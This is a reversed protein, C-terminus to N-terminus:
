RRNFIFSNATAILAARRQEIEVLLDVQAQTTLLSWIRENIALVTANLTHIVAFSAPDGGASVLVDALTEVVPLEGQLLALYREDKAEFVLHQLAGGRQLLTSISCTIERPTLKLRPYYRLVEIGTPVRRVIKATATIAAILM